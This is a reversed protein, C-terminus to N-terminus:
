SSGSRSAARGWVRGWGRRRPRWSRSWATSRRGGRRPGRGFAAWGGRPRAARRAGGTTARPPRPPGRPSAPSSGWSGSCAPPPRAAPEAGRPGEFPVKEDALTRKARVIRQGITPEPVLFARAIEDTTLGGLLRLTLAVRADTSLIPHCSVFLLRLLDDGVEDD